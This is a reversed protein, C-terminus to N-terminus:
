LAMFLHVALPLTCRLKKAATRSALLDSVILPGPCAFWFRLLLLLVTPAAAVLPGRRSHGAQYSQLLAM